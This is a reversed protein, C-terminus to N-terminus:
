DAMTSVMDRGRGLKTSLDQCEIELGTTTGSDDTM